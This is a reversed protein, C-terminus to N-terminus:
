YLFKSTEIEEGSCNANIFDKNMYIAAALRHNGDEVLERTPYGLNPCGFDIDIPFNDSWNLVLWAIRLVHHQRSTAFEESQLNTFNNYQIAETIEEVTLPTELVHWIISEFPNYIEKLKSISIKM